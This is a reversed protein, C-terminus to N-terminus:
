PTPASDLVSEETTKEYFTGEGDDDDPVISANHSLSAMVTIEDGKAITFFSGFTGCTGCTVRGAPGVPKFTPEIVHGEHMMLDKKSSESDKSDALPVALKPEAVVYKKTGDDSKSSPTRNYGVGAQWAAPPYGYGGYENDDDGWRDTSYTGGPYTSFMFGQENKWDSENLLVIEDQTMILMRSGVIQQEVMFKIAPNNWWKAPLPAIIQKVFASTDSEGNPINIGSIIGNHFILASVGDPDTYLFPHALEKSHAGHTARRFHAVYEVNRTNLERLRTLFHEKETQAYKAYYLENKENPEYWGLGFGDPNTRLNHEIVAESLNRDPTNRWAILCM